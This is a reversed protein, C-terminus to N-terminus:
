NSIECIKDRVSSRKLVLDQGLCKGDVIFDCKGIVEFGYRLYFDVARENEDWVDIYINEAQQFRPSEFAVDM